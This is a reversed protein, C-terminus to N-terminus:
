SELWRSLVNVDSTEYGFKDYFHRASENDSRVMLQVKVAGIARLWKEAAGMLESGVGQRQYTTKVALYYVWGRHGDHGVVVTGILEGGQELGLVASTPGDVARLFDKTPDNWPRTLGTETWLATVSSADLETLERINPQTSM